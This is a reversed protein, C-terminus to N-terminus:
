ATRRTFLAKQAAEAKTIRGDKNEDLGSNQSYAKTGKEMLVFNDDKGIAKPYLVAMYLEKPNTIKGKYPALYKEVYKMQEARSMTSLEEVSTGLSKATSPLFQILGTAGSQKNRKAPDFSQGTEFSMVSLLDSKEVGLFNAVRTLEKIFPEDEYISSPIKAARVQGVLSGVTENPQFTPPAPLNESQKVGLKEEIIEQRAAKVTGKPENPAVQVSRVQKRIEAMERMYDDLNKRPDPLKAEPAVKPKREMAAPRSMIGSSTTTPTTTEAIRQLHEPSDQNLYKERLKMLDNLYYSM